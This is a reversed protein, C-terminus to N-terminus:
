SSRRLSHIVNIFNAANSKPKGPFTKDVWSDVLKHDVVQSVAEYFAIYFGDIEAYTISLCVPRKDLTGIEQHHGVMIQKWPLKKGELSNQNIVWIFHRETNTAEVLGQVLDYEEPHDM